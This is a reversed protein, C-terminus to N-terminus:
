MQVCGSVSDIWRMKYIFVSIYHWTKNFSNLFLFTVNFYIMNYLCM